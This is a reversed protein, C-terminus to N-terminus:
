AVPLVAFRQMDGRRILAPVAERGERRADALIDELERATSVPSRDVQLLVDGRRLGEKAALSGPEVQTVLAGNVDEDIGLQNRLDGTLPAVAFGLGELNREADAAAVANEPTGLVGRLKVFTDNRWVKLRVDDGADAGGVLRSLERADRIAQGDYAVIVDGVQIGAEEAPSESVVSTVLAGDSSDLGLSEALEDDLGQLTIGLWGRDVTGNSKLEAVIESVQNAPIAFGIGVSGGNPSVIATNVGVVEGDTNFVPGGSNGRNIPADIQLYDDYPGSQIDRGRASVIGATTTGGLGFPNGIAVVWDGVRMQDSDGFAVSQLEDAEIKLLALDTKDDSGVVTANFERGDLVRVSVEDAGDIVHNNTVIYGEVDIIFGSGAGQVPPAEQQGMGPMGFFRQFFEQARPDGNFGMPQVSAKKSVEITVVAPEVQDVLDAFGDEPIAARASTAFSVAV